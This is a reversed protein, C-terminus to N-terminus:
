YEKQQRLEKNQMEFHKEVFLLILSITLCFKRNVWIVRPDSVEASVHM